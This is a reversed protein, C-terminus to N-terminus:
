FDRGDRKVASDAIFIPQLAAARTTLRALENGWPDVASFGAGLITPQFLQEIAFATKRESGCFFQLRVYTSGSRRAPREGKWEVWPGCLM